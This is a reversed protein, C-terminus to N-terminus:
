QIVMTLLRPLMLTLEAILIGFFVVIAAILVPKM